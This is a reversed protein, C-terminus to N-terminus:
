VNQVGGKGTVALVRLNDGDDLVASMDYAVAFNTGAPTGSIVTVTNRYVDERYKLLASPVTRAGQAQYLEKRVSQAAALPVCSGAAVMILTCVRLSTNM